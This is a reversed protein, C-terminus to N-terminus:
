LRNAEKKLHVIHRIVYVRLLCLVTCLSFVHYQVFPVCLIIYVSLVCSVSGCQFCRM